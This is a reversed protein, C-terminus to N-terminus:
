PTKTFLYLLLTSLKELKINASLTEQQNQFSLLVKRVTDM